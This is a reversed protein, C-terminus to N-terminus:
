SGADSLRSRLFDEVSVAREPAAMLLGEEETVLPLNLQESLALYQTEYTSLGLKIALRFARVPDPVQQRVGILSRFDRWVAELADPDGGATGVASIINLLEHNLIPPTIWEPDIRYLQRSAETLEGELLLFAVVSADVVIM